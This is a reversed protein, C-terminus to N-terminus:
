EYRLQTNLLSRLLNSEEPVHKIYYGPAKYSQLSAFHHYADLVQDDTPQIDPYLNNNFTYTCYSHRLM